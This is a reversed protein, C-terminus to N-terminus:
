VMLKKGHVGSKVSKVTKVTKVRGGKGRYGHFTWFGRALLWVLVFRILGNITKRSSLELAQFDVAPPDGLGAIAPARAAADSLLEEGTAGYGGLALASRM